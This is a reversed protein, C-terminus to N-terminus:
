YNKYVWSVDVNGAIGNIRYSSSYQWAAYSGRYTCASSYQAIWFDIGNAVVKNMNIYNNAWNLNAYLWPTYGQARVKNAFAVMMNAVTERGVNMTSDEIDYAVPFRIHAKYPAITQLCFDAEREATAVNTAYGYHYIGITMGAAIAKEINTKFKKDVQNPNYTGYTSRIMVHSVGAAKVKNFDIDGQWVSVDLMRFPTGPAPGPAPAGSLVVYDASVWGQSIQYWGNSIDLITISAGNALSGVKSYSTGAGSRINLGIDANVRGPVNLLSGLIFGDLGSVRVAWWNGNRGTVEVQANANVVGIKSSSTTPQARVNAGINSVCIGM